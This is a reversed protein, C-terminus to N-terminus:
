GAEAGTGGGAKVWSRIKRLEGSWEGGCRLKVFTGFMRELVASLERAAEFRAALEEAADRGRGGRGSQGGGGAGAAASPGGASDDGLLSVGSVAFGCGELVLTAQLDGAAVMLGARRPQKGRALASRTEPASAAGSARVSARGTLDYVCSLEMARDLVVEATRVGSGALDITATGGDCKWGLWTLFEMGLFDREHAYTASGIGQAMHEGPPDIFAAPGLDELARVLGHRRAYQGALVGASLPDLVRDFSVEFLGCFVESLRQGGGFLHLRQAGLDLLVGASSIRRYAGTKIEKDARHRANDRAEQRENRTLFGRGGAALLASEEMAVYSRLVDGPVRHRDQRMQFYVFEGASCGPADFNVDFLHRATIFGAESGDASQVRATGFAGGALCGLIWDDVVAPWEGSLGYSRFSMSGRMLGM